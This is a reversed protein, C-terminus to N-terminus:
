VVKVYVVDGEVRVALRTLPQLPTGPGYASASAAPDVYMGARDFEAGDCRCVFEKSAPQWDVWCGRHSCVASLATIEDGNRLVYGSFAPTSFLVAGGDPVDQQKAVAAWGALQPTHAAGGLQQTARDGASRLGFAASIGAALGAALGGAGGVLVRRRALGPRPDLLRSLRQQLAAVFRRRPLAACPRLLRLRAAMELAAREEDDEPVFPTPARDALLDDIHRNLRDYRDSM